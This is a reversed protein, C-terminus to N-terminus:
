IKKMRAEQEKTKDENESSADKIKAVITNVRGGWEYEQEGLTEKAWHLHSLKDSDKVWFM